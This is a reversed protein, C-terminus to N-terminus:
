RRQAQEPVLTEIQALAKRALEAASGLREIRRLAAVAIDLAAESRERRRQDLQPSTPKMAFAAEIPDTLAPMPLACEMAAADPVAAARDPLAPRSRPLFPHAVTTSFGM